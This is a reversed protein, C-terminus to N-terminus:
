NFSVLLWASCHLSAMQYFAGIKCSILNYNQLDLGFYAYVFHNLNWFWLSVLDSISMFLVFIFTTSSTLRLSVFFVTLNAITGMVVLLGCYAGVIQIISFM